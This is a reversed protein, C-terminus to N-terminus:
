VTMLMVSDRPGRAVAAAASSRFFDSRNRLPRRQAANGWRGWASRRERDVGDIEPPRPNQPEVQLFEAAAGSEPTGIHQDGTDSAHARTASTNGRESRRQVAVESTINIM